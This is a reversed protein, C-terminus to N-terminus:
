NEIFNNVYKELMKQAKKKRKEMDEDDKIYILKREGYLFSILKHGYYYQWMDITFFQKNNIYGYVVGAQRKSWEIKKVKIDNM